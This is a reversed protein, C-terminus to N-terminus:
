AVGTATGLASMAGGQSFNEMGELAGMTIGVGKKGIDYTKKAINYGKKAYKFGVSGAKGVFKAGKLGAKGVTTAGKIVKGGVAKAGQVAKFGNIKKKTNEAKESMNNRFKDYRSATNNAIRSKREDIRINHKAEREAKLMNRYEQNRKKSAELDSKRKKKKKEADKQEQAKKESDKKVKDIAGKVGGNNVFNKTAKYGRRVAYGGMAFGVFNNKLEGLTSSGGLGILGRIIKEGPFLFCVTLILFFWYKTPDVACADIGINILIIYVAAHLIQVLSTALFEKIWTSLSQSKGDGIKDIVYFAMIIPFIVILIIVALIRRYYMFLVAFTQYLLIAWAVAYVFRNEKQAKNKLKFMIDKNLSDRMDELVQIEEYIVSNKYNEFLADLGTFAESNAYEVFEEKARKIAEACEEYEDGFGTRNMIEKLNWLERDILSDLQPSKPNSQIQSLIRQIQIYVQQNASVNPPFTNIIEVLLERTTSSAYIFKSIENIKSNYESEDVASWDDFNTDIINIVEDIKEKLTERESPSMRNFKDLAEQIKGDINAQAEERTEPTGQILEDLEAIRENLMREYVIVEADEGVLSADQGLRDLIEQTTYTNNISQAETEMLGVIANGIAPIAPLFYPIVVLLIIGTIWYEVYKMYKSQDKTGVSLLIKVGIYLLMVIYIVIALTKLANFLTTIINGVSPNNFVGKGTTGTNASIEIGGLPTLDIVLQDIRNFLINDINLSVDSGIAWEAVRMFASGIAMVVDVLIAELASGGKDKEEDNDNVASAGRSYYEEKQSDEYEILKYGAPVDELSHEFYHTMGFNYDYDHYVNETNYIVDYGVAKGSVVSAPINTMAMAEKGINRKQVSVTMGSGVSLNEILKLTYINDKILLVDITTSNKNKNETIISYALNDYRAALRVPANNNEDGNFLLYKINEITTKNEPIGTVTISYVATEKPYFKVFSEKQYNGNEDFKVVMKGNELSYSGPYESGYTFYGAEIANLYETAYVNGINLIFNSLLLICLLMAVIKNSKNLKIHM